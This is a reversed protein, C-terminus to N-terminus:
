LEDLAAKSEALTKETSMPDIARCAEELINAVEYLDEQWEEITTEPPCIQAFEDILLILRLLHRFIVGEQKQLGKATIYKDFNGGFELV